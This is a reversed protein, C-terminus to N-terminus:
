FFFYTQACRIPTTMPIPRPPLVSALLSLCFSTEAAQNMFFGSYDKSRGLLASSLGRLNVQSPFTPPSPFSLSLTRHLFRYPITLPKPEAILSAHGQLSSIEFLLLFLLSISFSLLFSAAAPLSVTRLMGCLPSKSGHEWGSVPFFFLSRRLSIDSPILDVGSSDRIFYRSDFRGFGSPYV